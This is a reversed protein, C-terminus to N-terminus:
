SKRDNELDNLSTRSFVGNNSRGNNSRGHNSREDNSRGNNLSGHNSGHNSKSGWPRLSPEIEVMRAKNLGHNTKSLVTDSLDGDDIGDIEVATDFDTFILNFFCLNVYM